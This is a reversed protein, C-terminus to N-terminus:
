NPEPDTSDFSKTQKRLDLIVYKSNDEVVEFYRKAWATKADNNVSIYHTISYQFVLEPLPLAVVPIGPRNIQYLFATDGQYPAVVMADAPLIQDARKGAEVIVPNNVRYLTKVYDWPLYFTLLLLLSALPITFLRPIFLPSGAFLYVFGRAAFIVLAPVIFVQYYDHQVNGTAFVILFIFTSLIFLHLLWGQQIKPKILVGVLLLAAGAVSLIERGLREGVIWRWFAPKFRIGNGNFLWNSAPIGEPAQLIWVRWMVFPMIGVIFFLWYRIPIPWFRKEKRYLSYILPLFYFIAMPKILFACSTFFLAVFLLQLSNEYIWRDVFYFMGLSFFVLAPEPLIVRSYFVNFPLLAFLLAAVYATPIGFYRRAILFIFVLSGISMGISVMRALREDIGGNLVYSFFILTNYIPFEVFRFRERNTIPDEAIGSIDDFKPLFPNFGEQYFNRAVAATDAQRWSHWEAVPNDIKYLRVSISLVIILLLWIYQNKLLRIIM